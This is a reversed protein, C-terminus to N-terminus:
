AGSFLTERFYFFWIFCYIVTPVMIGRVFEEFYRRNAFFTPILNVCLAMLVLTRLKFGRWIMRDNGTVSVSDSSVLAENLYYLSVFTLPPLLLGMLFGNLFKNKIM